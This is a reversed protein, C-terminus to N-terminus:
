TIVRLKEEVSSTQGFFNHRCLYFLGGMLLRHEFISRVRFTTVYVFVFNFAYDIVKWAVNFIPHHERSRHTAVPRFKSVPFHIIIDHRKATGTRPTTRRRNTWLWEMAIALFGSGQPISNKWATVGKAYSSAIWFQCNARSAAALINRSTVLDHQYSSTYNIKNRYIYVRAHSSSCCALFTLFTSTEFIALAGM